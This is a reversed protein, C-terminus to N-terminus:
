TLSPPQPPQQPQEAAASGEDRIDHRCTPCRVSRDLWAAICSMHYMHQCARLRSVNETQLIVDQCITCLTGEPITNGSISEIAAEMQARTPRVIVPDRFAAWLDNRPTTTGGLGLGENLMSLLLNTSNLSNYVHPQTPIYLPVTSPVGSEAYVVTNNRPRRRPEPPQTATYRSAGYAFLNFRSNMQSRVYHFVQNINQFRGTDYLFAPFYNHIDDLLGVSYIVEYNSLGPSAM